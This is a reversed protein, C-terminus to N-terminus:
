GEHGEHTEYGMTKQGRGGHREWMMFLEARVMGGTGPMLEGSNTLTPRSTRKVRQVGRQVGCTQRIVIQLLYKHYILGPRRSTTCSRYLVSGVWSIHGLDHLNYPQWGSVHAISYIM